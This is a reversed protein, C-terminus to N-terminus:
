VASRVQRIAELYRAEVTAATRAPDGPVTYLNLEIADAGAEAMLRAYRSWSGPATANVSAIVPIDLRAKAQEVLRVHREPGLDDFEMPPFYSLAEGFQETGLEIVGHTYMSDNVIEEEFLSPLVVAAAGSDQLRVLTELRGTLPSASAVLPTRLDLGLYRTTLDAM